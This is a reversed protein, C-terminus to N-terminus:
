CPGWDLAVGSNGPPNGADARSAREMGWRIAADIRKIEGGCDRLLRAFMSHLSEGLHRSLGGRHLEQDQRAVADARFHHGLHALHDVPEGLVATEIELHGLIQDAASM